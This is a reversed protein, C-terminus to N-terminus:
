KIDMLEQSQQNLIDVLLNCITEQTFAPGLDGLEINSQSFWMALEFLIILQQENIKM